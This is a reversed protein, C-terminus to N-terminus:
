GGGKGPDKTPTSSSLSSATDNGASNDEECLKDMMHRIGHRTVKLHPAAKNIREVTKTIEGYPINGNHNEETQKLQKCLKYIIVDKAERADRTVQKHREKECETLNTDM